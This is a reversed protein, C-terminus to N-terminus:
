QAELITNLRRQPLSLIRQALLHANSNSKLSLKHDALCEEIIAPWLLLRNEIEQKLSSNEENQPDKEINILLSIMHTVVPLVMTNLLVAKNDGRTDKFIKIQNETAYIEPMDLEVDYDWEGDVLDTKEIFKIMNKMGKFKQPIIRYYNPTKQALVYGKKFNVELNKFEEHLSNCSYKSIDKMAVIYGEVSVLGSFHSSEMEFIDQDSFTTFTQRHFTDRCNLVVVYCAEKKEILNKLEPVNAVSFVCDIEIKKEGRKVETFTFAPEFNGGQYDNSDPRLVPYGFSKQTDYKM